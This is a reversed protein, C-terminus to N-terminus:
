CQKELKIPIFHAKCNPPKPSCKEEYKKALYVKDM